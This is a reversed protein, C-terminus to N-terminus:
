LIFGPIEFLVGAHSASAASDQDGQARQLLLIASNNEQLWCRLSFYSSAKELRPKLRFCNFVM